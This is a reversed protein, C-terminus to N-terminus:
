MSYRRWLFHFTMHGTLENGSSTADNASDWMPIVECREATQSPNAASRMTLPGVPSWSTGTTGLYVCEKESAAVLRVGDDLPQVLTRGVHNDM